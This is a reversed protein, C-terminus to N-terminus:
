RGRAREGGTARMEREIGERERKCRGGMKALHSLGREREKERKIPSDYRAGFGGKETLADVVQGEGMEMKVM